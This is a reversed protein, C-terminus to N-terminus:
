WNAFTWGIMPQSISFSSRNTSLDVRRGRDEDRPSVNQVYECAIM